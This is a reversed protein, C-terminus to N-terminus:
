SFRVIIAAPHHTDPFLDGTNPATGNKARTLLSIPNVSFGMIPKWMFSIDVRRFLSATSVCFRTSRLVRRCPLDPYRWPVVLTPPIKSILWTSTLACPLVSPPNLHSMCSTSPSALLCAGLSLCNHRPKFFNMQSSPPSPFCANGLPDLLFGRFRATPVSSTTNQTLQRQTTSFDPGPSASRDSQDLQKQQLFTGTRGHKM